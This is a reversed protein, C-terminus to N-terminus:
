TPMTHAASCYISFARYLLVARPHRIRFVKAPKSLKLRTLAHTPRRFIRYANKYGPPQLFYRQTLYSKQMTTGSHNQRPGMSTFAASPEVMSERYFCEPIVPSPSKREDESMWKGAQLLKSLTNTEVSLCSKKGFVCPYICRCGWKKGLITQKSRGTIRRSNRACRRM